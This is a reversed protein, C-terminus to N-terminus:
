LCCSANLLRMKKQEEDVGESECEENDPMTHLLDRLLYGTLEDKLLAIEWKAEDASMMVTSTKLKELVTEEWGSPLSFGKM